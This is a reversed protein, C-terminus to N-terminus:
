RNTYAGSVSNAYVVASSEAWALHSSRRSEHLYYPTCTLSKEIGMRDFHSLISLQKDRVNLPLKKAMYDPDFSQPNLTTRVRTQAGGSSLAGLFEEPADGLTKYSVGSVHASEIPILKSAHFLDGLKALIKMSTQMAWGEEGDCIREEEKTLYM